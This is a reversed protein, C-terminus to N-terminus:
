VGIGRAAVAVVIAAAGADRLVRAAQNATTGTTLVDDVLVIRHGDLRRTSRFANRLNARRKSPPLSTQAPTRRTKVLIHRHFPVKLRRSLRRGMLEPTSHPRTVRRLWHQPVPIVFDARFEQLEPGRRNWLLDALWVSAVAGGGSKAKLVGERLKDRYEGIAIIKDFAFRDNRCYRCGRSADLYPGVPASCRGCVAQPQPLDAACDACIRDAGNSPPLSHLCTVCAVPFAADLLSQLFRSTREM